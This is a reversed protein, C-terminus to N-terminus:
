NKKEFNNREQETAEENGAEKQVKTMDGAEM